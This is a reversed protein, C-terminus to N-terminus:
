PKNPNISEARKELVETATNLFKYAIRQGQYGMVLAIPFIGWNLWDPILVGVYNIIFITLEVVFLVLASVILSDWEEKFFVKWITKITLEPFTKKYGTVKVMVHFLVGLILCITTLLYIM